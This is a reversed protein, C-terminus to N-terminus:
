IRIRRHYVPYRWRGRRVVVCDCNRKVTQKYPATNRPRAAILAGTPCQVARAPGSKRSPPARQAGGLASAGHPRANTAGNEMPLYMQLKLTDNLIGQFSGIYKGPMGNCIENKGSGPLIFYSINFNHSEYSVIRKKCSKCTEPLFFSVYLLYITYCINLM